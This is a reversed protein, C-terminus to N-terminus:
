EPFCLLVTSSDRHVYPRSLRGGIPKAPADTPKKHELDDSLTRELHKYLRHNHSPTTLPLLYVFLLCM